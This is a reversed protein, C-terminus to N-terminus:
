NSVSCTRDAATQGPVGELVEIPVAPAAPVAPAEPEAIPEAGPQAASSVKGAKPPTAPAPGPAADAAPANPDVASGVGTNGAELSFLEDSRIRDFLATAASTNPQVKGLFAGSGGTRGPYQVFTINEVPVTRLAQAMSVMTDPSVLSSSLKMSTAAVQAMGYLKSFDSLVGEDQVKRMLSSMYVQQNSIRGLDSGDGVGYRTRLFALATEGVLTHTGASPLDLGTFRDFIPGDICVDVGGVATSLQAVGNFSIAGAYPVSLGTLAEVTLLVCNLGGASWAVNIPQASMAGSPRGGKPDPCSPIPVVLDRPISVVVASQQDEAVHLLINVDNLTAGDRARADAQGPENDIGVLLVNFGGEWDGVTPLIREGQGDLGQLEVVDINANTQALTIAGVSVTSVLVVAMSAAAVALITKWARSRSLRGHRVPATPLSRIARDRVPESM